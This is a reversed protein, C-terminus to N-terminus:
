ELESFLNYYINQAVFVSKNENWIKPSVTLQIKQTEM